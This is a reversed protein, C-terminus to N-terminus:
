NKPVKLWIARIGEDKFRDVSKKLTDNFNEERALENLDTTVTLGRFRDITGSLLGLAKGDFTRAGKAIM